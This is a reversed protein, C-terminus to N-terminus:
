SAWWKAGVADISDPKYL